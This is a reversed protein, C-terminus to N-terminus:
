GSLSDPRARVRALLQEAALGKCLVEGAGSALGAHEEADSELLVTCESGMWFFGLRDWRRQM